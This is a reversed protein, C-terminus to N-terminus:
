KLWSLFTINLKATRDGCDYVKNECSFALEKVRKIGRFEFVLIKPAYTIFLNFIKITKM